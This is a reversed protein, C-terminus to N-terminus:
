KGIKQALLRLALAYIVLGIFLAIDLVHGKLLQYCVGGVGAGIVYILFKSMAPM